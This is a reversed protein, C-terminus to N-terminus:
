KVPKGDAGLLKPPTMYVHMRKQDNAPGACDEIREYSGLVEGTEDLVKGHQTWGIRVGLVEAGRPTRIGTWSLELVRKQRQRVWSTIKGMNCEALAADLSWLGGLDPITPQDAGVIKNRDPTIEEVRVLPNEGAM